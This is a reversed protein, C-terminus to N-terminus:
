PELLHVSSAALQSILRYIRRESLQSKKDEPSRAIVTISSKNSKELWYKYCWSHDFGFCKSYHSLEAVVHCQSIIVVQLRSYLRNGFREKWSTYVVYRVVGLMINVYLVFMLALHGLCFVREQISILALCTCCSGPHLYPTCLNCETPTKVSYFDVPTTLM